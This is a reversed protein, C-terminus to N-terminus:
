LHNVAPVLVILNSSPDPRNASNPIVAPVKLPGLNRCAACVALGVQFVASSSLGFPETQNLVVEAFEPAFM